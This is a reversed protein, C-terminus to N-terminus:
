TRVREMLDKDLLIFDDCVDQLHRSKGTAFYAHEIHKGFTSKAFEVAPAFDGDGSVLIGVDYVNNVAFRAMDVAIQIDVGKEIFTNGRPVLRGLKLETYPTRKVANFFRQQDKYRKSSDQKHPANYYYVRILERKPKLKALKLGFKYFDIDTFGVNHKLGHYFNNGDVFVYVRKM